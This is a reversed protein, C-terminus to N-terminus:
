ISISSLRQIYTDAAVDPVVFLKVRYASSEGVSLLVNEDGYALIVFLLIRFLDPCM